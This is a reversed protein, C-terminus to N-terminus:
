HKEAAKLATERAARFESNDNWQPFTSEDALRKGVAHLAKINEIVGSFDWNPDYEDSPKHYRNRTYDDVAARGAAKGGQLKDFGSDAYLVPVGKRAFNLQDSRYFFGKEAEGDAVITRGQKGLEDKLYDDMQSQGFGVISMDHTRGIIKLADMNIDAVTHILPVSPHV